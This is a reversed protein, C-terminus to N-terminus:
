EVIVTKKTVRDCYDGPMETYRLRMREFTFEYLNHWAPRWGQAQRGIM